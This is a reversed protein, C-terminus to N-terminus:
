SVISDSIKIIAAVVCKTDDENNDIGNALIGLYECPYIEWNKNLIRNCSDRFKRADEITTLIHFGPIYSNNIGKYKKTKEACERNAPNEIATWIDFPTPRNWEFAQFESNKTQLGVKFGQKPIHVSGSLKSLCM